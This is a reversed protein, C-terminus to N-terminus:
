VLQPGDIPVVHRLVVQAWPDLGQELGAFEDTVRHRRWGAAVVKGARVDRLGRGVRGLRGLVNDVGVGARMRRVGLVGVQLLCPALGDLQGCLFVGESDRDVLHSALVAVTGPKGTSMDELAHGDCLHASGHLTLKCFRQGLGTAGTSAAHTANASVALQLLLVGSIHALELGILETGLKGARCRGSLEDCEDQRRLIGQGCLSALVLVGDRSVVHDDGLGQCV